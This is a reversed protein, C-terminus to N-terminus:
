IVLKYTQGFDFEFSYQIVKNVVGTKFTFSSTKITLPKVEYETEDWIWYIEDSVLLQKFIENYAEDVWDTNVIISEKTDVMYNLNNSDYSAYGLDPANWSGIQPQYLSRQVDFRKTNIMNFNFSDFQGYRNKWKVRINPYKQNCVINYKLKEGLPNGLNSYAQITYSTFSGSLPFGADNPANPYSNIQESTLSGTYLPWEGTQISSSYVIKAAHETGYNYFGTFVGANSVNTTFVSQTAPGSTMLPWYPTTNEIFEGIPEQFIQYGDIYKMVDTAVKQSGTVYVSGSLYEWYGVGKAYKVNSPNAQLLDTLTSNLIRSVDFIGVNSANPYKVLTYQPTSGSASVSGTWYYLDLVYQFSSSTYVPTSEELTIPMPSQVLSVIDPQQTISLAM